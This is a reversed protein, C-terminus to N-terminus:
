HWRMGRYKVPNPQPALTFVFPLSLSRYTPGPHRKDPSSKASVLYIQPWRSCLPWHGFCSAPQCTHVAAPPPPPPALARRSPWWTSYSFSQVVSSSLETYENAASFLYEPKSIRFVYIIWEAKAKVPDCSPTPAQWLQRRALPVTRDPCKGLGDCLFHCGNPGSMITSYGPWRGHIDKSRPPFFGRLCCAFVSFSQDGPSKFCLGQPQSPVMSIVAGDSILSMNLSFPFMKVKSTLSQKGTKHQFCWSKDFHCMGNDQAVCGYKEMNRSIVIANGRHSVAM